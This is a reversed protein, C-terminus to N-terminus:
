GRGVGWGWRTEGLNQVTASPVRGTPDFYEAWM